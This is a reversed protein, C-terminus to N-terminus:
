AGFASYKIAREHSYFGEWHQLSNKRENAPTSIWATVSDRHVKNDFPLDYVIRNVWAIALREPGLVERLKLLTFVQSTHLKDKGKVEILALQGNQGIVNVDPWGTAMKDWNRLVTSVLNGWTERELSRWLYLYSVIQEAYRAANTNNSLYETAEAESAALDNIAANDFKYHRINKFRELLDTKSFRDIKPVEPYRLGYAFGFHRQFVVNNQELLHVVNQETFNIIRAVISDIQVRTLSHTRKRENFEGILSSIFSRLLYSEGFGGSVELEKNNSLFAIVKREPKGDNPLPPLVILPLGMAEAQKNVPLRTIYGVFAEPSVELDEDLVGLSRLVELKKRSVHVADDAPDTM